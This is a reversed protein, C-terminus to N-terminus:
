GKNRGDGGFESGLFAPTCVKARARDSVAVGIDISQFFGGLDGLARLLFESDLWGLRQSSPARQPEFPFWEVLQIGFPSVIDANSADM